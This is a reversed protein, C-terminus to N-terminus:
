KRPGIIVSGRNVTKAKHNSGMNTVNGEKGKIVIDGHYSYGDHVRVSHVNTEASNRGTTITTVTGVESDIIIDGTNAGAMANSVTLLCFIITYFFHSM